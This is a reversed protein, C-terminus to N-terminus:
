QKATEKIIIDATRQSAGAGELIEALLDYGDFIRQRNAEDVTIKRFEEDLVGDNFDSQILETVVPSDTILNVLSIYKIRSGILIRAIFASLRNCQYCVVQPVRFLATELTATGSCVVAAYSNSLINYTNDYVVNLNDINSPVYKKYFDNGILSMAAITFNYDKHQQALHVMLPLMRRLEQKRSGPLLAINKTKDKTGDNESQFSKARYRDVEDLLPHGVYVANPFDNHAYFDREFPLIYCLKDLDRRMSRIRAKKWAWIQPSIYYFNRFGMSHTFKAIKLNFGPYDIFIMADPQFAIIDEKCFSINNRIEGLHSVVEVFGMFALDRIHRVQVVDTSAAAIEAMRDGGWFRIKADPQCSLIARMLNAGHLDGSAEGSIIYYKM